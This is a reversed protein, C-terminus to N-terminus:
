HMEADAGAQLRESPPISAASADPSQRAGDVEHGKPRTCPRTTRRQDSRRTPALMALAMCFPAYGAGLLPHRSTLIGIASFGSCVLYAMSPWRHTRTDRRETM